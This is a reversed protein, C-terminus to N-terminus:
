SRSGPRSNASPVRASRLSTSPSSNADPRGAAATGRDASRLPGAPSPPPRLGVGHPPPERPPPRLANPRFKLSPQGAVILLHSHAAFPSRVGGLPHLDLSGDLPVGRLVTVIVRRLGSPPCPRISPGVGHRRRPTSGDVLGPCSWGQGTAREATHHNSSSPGMASVSVSRCTTILCTLRMSGAM